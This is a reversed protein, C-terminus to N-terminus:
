GQVDYQVVPWVSRFGNGVLEIKSAVFMRSKREMASLSVVIM